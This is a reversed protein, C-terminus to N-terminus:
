NFDFQFSISFPVSCFTFIELHFFIPFIFINGSSFSNRPENEKESELFRFRLLFPPTFDTRFLLLVCVCVLLPLSLLVFTFLFCFLSFVSFAMQQQTFGFDLYISQHQKNEDIKQKEISNLSQKRHTNTITHKNPKRTNVETYRTRAERSKM